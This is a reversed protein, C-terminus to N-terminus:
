DEQSRWCKDKDESSQSDELRKRLEQESHQLRSVREPCYNTITSSMKTKWREPIAARQPRINIINLGLKKM